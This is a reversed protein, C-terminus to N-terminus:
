WDIDDELVLATEIKNDVIYKFADMHSRWSGLYPLPLKEKAEGWPLAKENIEEGQVAPILKTISIGQSSGILTVADQRDTRYKLSILLIAGFGLTENRVARVIEEPMPDDHASMGFSKSGTSFTLDAMSPFKKGSKPKSSKSPDVSSKSNASTSLRGLTVYLFPLALFALLAMSFRRNLLSQLVVM